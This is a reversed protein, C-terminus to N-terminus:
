DPICHVLTGKGDMARHGTVRRAFTHEAFDSCVPSLSNWLNPAAVM